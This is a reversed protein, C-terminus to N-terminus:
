WKKIGAAQASAFDFVLNHCGIKCFKNFKMTGLEKSAQPMNCFHDFLSHLPGALRYCENDTSRFSGGKRTGDDYSENERNKLIRKDNRLRDRELTFVSRIIMRDREYVLANRFLGAGFSKVEDMTHMKMRYRQFYQRGLYGRIVRQCTKIKRGKSFGARRKRRMRVRVLHRRTYKQMLIIQRTYKMLGSTMWRLARGRWHKQIFCVAKLLQLDYLHKRVLKGRMIKQIQICCAKRALRIAIENQKKIARVERKALVGRWFNQIVTASYKKKGKWGFSLSRKLSLSRRKIKSKNVTM